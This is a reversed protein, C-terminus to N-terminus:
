KSKTKIHDGLIESVDSITVFASGDIEKIVHRIEMLEVRTVVCYLMEKKGSILGKADITTCTRGLKEYLSQAVTNGQDTIITVAKGQELGNEVLDIVKYTIFYSLLSYMSRDFGFLLGAVIFIIINFIFIIQGVSFSFKKSLLLAVIETGDLCGGFRLVLGVGIGLLLGGFVVALVTENTIPDLEHFVETMASFIVMGFAGRFFFEKGILKLGMFMFPINLLLIFLGLPWSTLTSIMISIGTIGGDLITNPVLFEELAFAAIVSGVVIGFYPFVYEKIINKFKM